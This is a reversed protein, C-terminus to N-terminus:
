RSPQDLKLIHGIRWFTGPSLRLAGQEGETPQAISGMTQVQETANRSM